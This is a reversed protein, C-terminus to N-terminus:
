IDISILLSTSNSKCYNAFCSVNIVIQPHWILSLGRNKNWLHFPCISSLWLTVGSALKTLPMNARCMFYSDLWIEPRCLQLVVFLNDSFTFQYPRCMPAITSNAVQEYYFTVNPVEFKLCLTLEARLAYSTESSSILPWIPPFNAWPRYSGCALRSHFYGQLSNVVSYSHLLVM